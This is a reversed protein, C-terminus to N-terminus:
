EVEIAEVPCSEVAEEICEENAVFDAGSIVQAKEDSMEFVDPCIGVCLECATCEDNITINEIAMPDERNSTKRFVIEERRDLERM